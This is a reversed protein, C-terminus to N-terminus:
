GMFSNLNSNKMGRLKYQKLTSCAETVYSSNGSTQESDLYESIQLMQVCDVDKRMIQVDWM